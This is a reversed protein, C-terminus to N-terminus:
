LTCDARDAHTCQHLFAGHKTNDLFIDLESKDNLSLTINSVYARLQQYDIFHGYYQWLTLNEQTPYAKVLMSPYTHFAPHVELMITKLAMYGNGYCSQLSKACRSNAPFMDNSQLLTFSIIALMQNLPSAMHQPLDDAPDNGATFGWHGGHDKKYCWLPHAYVHHAMVHNVFVEYWQQVGSPSDDKKCTMPNKPVDKKNLQVDLAVYVTSDALVMHHTGQLYYMLGNGFPTSLTAKSILQHDMKAQFCQGNDAPLGASNFTYLSPTPGTTCGGAPGSGTGSGGSAGGILRATGLAAVIADGFDKPQSSNTQISTTVM